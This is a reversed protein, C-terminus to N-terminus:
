PGPPWASARRRGPRRRGGPRPIGAWARRRGTSVHRVVRADDVDGVDDAPQGRRPLRLIQGPGVVGDDADRAELALKGPVMVILVLQEQAPVPREPDLQLALLGDRKRGTVQEHNGGPPLM